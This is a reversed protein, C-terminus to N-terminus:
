LFLFLFVLFQFRLFPVNPKSFKIFEGGVGIIAKKMQILLLFPFIKAKMNSADQRTWCFLFQIGCHSDTHINGMCFEM